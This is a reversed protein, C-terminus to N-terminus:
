LCDECWLGDERAVEGGLRRRDYEIGIGPRDGRDRETDVLWFVSFCIYPLNFISFDQKGTKDLINM